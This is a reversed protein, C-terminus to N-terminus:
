LVGDGCKNELWMVCTKDDKSLRKHENQITSMKKGDVTSTLLFLM